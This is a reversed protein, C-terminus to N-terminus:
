LFPLDIPYFASSFNEFSFAVSSRQGSVASRQGSVMSSYKQINQLLFVFSEEIFFKKGMM